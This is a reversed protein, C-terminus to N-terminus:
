LEEDYESVEDDISIETKQSVKKTEVKEKKNQETKTEVPYFATSFLFDLEKIKNEAAQNILDIKLLRKKKKLDKESLLQSRYFKKDPNYIEAFTSKLLSLDVILKSEKIFLNEDFKYNIKYNLLPAFEDKVSKKVCNFIVKIKKNEINQSHLFLITKITDEMIKPDNKTPIVFYDFENLVQYEAINQVFNAIESAGVDFIINDDSLLYEYFITFDTDGYHKETKINQFKSSSSNQSEIEIIKKPDDLRTYILERSIFSKGVNGSSNLVCFKM